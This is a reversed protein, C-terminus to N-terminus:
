SIYIRFLIKLRLILYLKFSIFQYPIVNDLVNPPSEFLSNLKSKSKHVYFNNIGDFYVFKYGKSFLLSEWKNSIKKKTLPETSEICVVWPRVFSKKWSSLVDLEGGEVDIKLWHIDKFSYRSLLDDLSISHVSHVNLEFGNKKHKDAIKKLTTSLGTSKISYFLIPARSQSVVVQENFEDPRYKIFNKFLNDNPEINVGRWGRLYFAYSVSHLIPHYAGIDIYFGNKINKLARWLVFDELNQAYSIFFPASNKLRFNLKKNLFSKIIKIAKNM